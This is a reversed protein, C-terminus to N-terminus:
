FDGDQPLGKRPFLPQFEKNPVQVGERSDRSDRRGDRRACGCTKGGWIWGPIPIPAM